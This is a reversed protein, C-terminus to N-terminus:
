KKEIKKFPSNISIELQNDKKFLYGELPEMDNFITLDPIPPIRSSSLLPSQLLRQLQPNMMGFNIQSFLVANKINPNNNGKKGAIVENIYAAEKAVSDKSLGFIMFNGKIAAYIPFKRLPSYTLRVVGDGMQRVFVGLEVALNAYNELKSTYKTIDQIHVLLRLDPYYTKPLPTFDVYMIKGCTNLALLDRYDIGVKECPKKIIDAAPSTEVLKFLNDSDSPQAADAFIMCSDTKIYEPMEMAKFPVQENFTTTSRFFFGSESLSLTGLMNKGKDIFNSKTIQHILNKSENFKALNQNLSKDQIGMEMIEDYLGKLPVLDVYFYAKLEDKSPKIDSLMSALTQKYLDYASFIAKQPETLPKDFSEPTIKQKKMLQEVTPLPVASFKGSSMKIAQELPKSIRRLIEIPSNKFAEIAETSIFNESIGFYAKNDSVSGSNATQAQVPIIAFTLTIALLLSFLKKM